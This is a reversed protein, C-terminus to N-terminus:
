LAAERIFNSLLRQVAFIGDRMHVDNLDDGLQPPMLYPLNTQRTYWEGTGMGGFQRMPKDNDTVIARRVRLSNAVVKVNYASFCCVVGDARHLAKLAARLSLGTAYGECLWIFNGSALRFAANEMEGGFLFKKSGDEWILQLSTIRNGPQRAPVVIAREGGNEPLLYRSFEGAISLVSAADIVPAREHQFGKSILYPHQAPKAKALMAVAVAAAERAREKKRKEQQAIKRAIEKREAPTYEEDKLGVTHKEGTRWNWATVHQENVIVRGDGKGSKGGDLTDTKMWHGFRTSCRPPVIGVSECAASIAADVNM